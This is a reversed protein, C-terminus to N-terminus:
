KVEEIVPKKKGNLSKLDVDLGRVKGESLCFRIEGGAVNGVLIRRQWQDLGELVGRIHGSVVQDLERSQVIRLVRKVEEWGGGLNWRLGEKGKEEEKDNLVKVVSAIVLVAARRLIATEPAIELMLLSLVLDISDSVLKAGLGLLNTEIATSLISLASTRIRIDDEPATPNPIAWAQLLREDEVNQEDPEFDPAEGDWAKDAEEKLGQAKQDNEHRTQAIKPKKSRRGAVVIMCGGVLSATDGVLAGGLGEITKLLAEGTRIRVDLRVDETVDIYSEVLRRVVTKPHRCALIGLAKIASLYIFEDEDQLVSQLLITTSPIDLIPSPKIILATLQSLGQARIPPLPDALYSLSQLHIKRDAAYPDLPKPGIDAPLNSTPASVHFEILSLINSATIATPTPLSMTPKSFQTLIKRLPGFLAFIEPDLSFEPSSLIDTLLSLAISIMEASDEKQQLQETSFAGVDTQPNLDVIARLSAFSPEAVGPRRTQTGEYEMVYGTLLQNVLEVIKKPNAALKSKYKGLMKQTLKAYVLSQLPDKREDHIADLRNSGDTVEEGVLCRKSVYVFLSGIDDEEGVVSQLLNLYEDVRCDVKGIIGGINMSQADKSCQRIEVGGTSGPGYTWIEEGDWLLNDSLTMLKEIGVSMKFYTCLIPFIKNHLNLRNMDKSFCCLSWLPRLCLSVLRKTLGPNPHLLVLSALRGVSSALSTESVLLPLLGDARVTRQNAPIPNLRQLIPEAFVKWGVGGPSGFKRRGLIGNGIIYAAVRPNDPHTDDLLELLQPSIAAFYKEATMSSPVSSLLKSAHGLVELSLSPGSFQDTM